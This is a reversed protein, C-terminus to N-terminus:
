MIRRSIWQLTNSSISWSQGNFLYEDSRGRGQVHKPWKTMQSVGEKGRFELEPMLEELFHEWVAWLSGIKYEGKGSFM